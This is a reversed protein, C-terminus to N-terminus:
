RINIGIFNLWSFIYDGGFIMGIYTVSINKLCGVVTTTLASNYATCITISYMLIFGMVCSAAFQLVFYVNTWGKFEFALKLDGTFYSLITAPVLMFLCNYYTIGYKGLDKSNLQQKIYVNNAATFVDNLLIFFYGLLHFALDDSAAVISGGIMTLVTLIVTRSPRKGLIYIELIMTFLISFRRLVTFMPLSLQKTGLLGCILNGIYLLPLPFIKAPISRSMDPFSVLGIMKGIQLIVIAALM